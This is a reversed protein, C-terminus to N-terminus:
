EGTLKWRDDIIQNGHGMANGNKALIWQNQKILWKHGAVIDVGCDVGVAWVEGHIVIGYGYQGLLGVGMYMNWVSLYTNEKNYREMLQM